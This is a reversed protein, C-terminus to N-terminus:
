RVYTLQKNRSVQKEWYLQSQPNSDWQKKVNKKKEQTAKLLDCTVYLNTHTIQYTPPLSVATNPQITSDTFNWTSSM